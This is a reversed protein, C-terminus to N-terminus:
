GTRTSARVWDLYAASGSLPPSVLFEPVDYPHLERLRQRLDDVKDACTKIALQHEVAEEVAQEWRYVSREGEGTSVCAALREEVLVRAIPGPDRDGPLTTWVLVVPESEVRNM